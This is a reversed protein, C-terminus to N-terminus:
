NPAHSPKNIVLSVKAAQVDSKVNNGSVPVINNSDSNSIAMIVSFATMLVAIILVVIIIKKSVM